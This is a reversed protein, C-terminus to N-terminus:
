RSQMMADDSAKLFYSNRLLSARTLACFCKCSERLKVFLNLTWRLMANSWRSAFWVVKRNTGAADAARTRFAEVIAGLTRETRAFSACFGSNESIMSQQLEVIGGEELLIDVVDVAFPDGCLRALGELHITLM